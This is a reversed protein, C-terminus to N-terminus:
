NSSPLATRRLNEVRHPGVAPVELLDDSSASLVAQVSGFRALLARATSTSIGPVAALMAEAAESASGAQRRQAYAPRDQRKASRRVALRHLWLASDSRDSTRILRIGQEIVAICIGRIAAPAIPGRDLDQGEMLFFPYTAARRLKGIQPWFSGKAIASHLDAVSKREVLTDTALAYDGAPLVVLEVTAGFARLMAPIGSRRENVDAVIRVPSSQEERRVYTGLALNPTAECAGARRQL